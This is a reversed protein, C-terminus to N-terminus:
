TEVNSMIKKELRRIIGDLNNDKKRAKEVRSYIQSIGTDRIKSYVSAIEKLKRGTHKRSLYIGLKRVLREDKIDEEVKEKIDEIAIREKLQRLVPIEEDEQRDKIFTERIWEFFDNNGLIFGAKINDGIISPQEGIGELVFDKYLARAKQKDKDFCSLIFDTELWTPVKAKSIFLRYSSWIYDGPDKVMDARVPNLHIYRSLHHLYEDAQVLISKYRGQFLHGSRNKRKNFYSAYSTNLTHMAKVLNVEPTEILLHYHNDMRCYTHIITHYRINLEELYCLFRERDTDSIFIKSRENGRQIIHYYAGAYEIRLPRAM